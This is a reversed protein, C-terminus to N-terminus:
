FQPSPGADDLRVLESSLRLALRYNLDLMVRLSEAQMDNVEVSSLTDAVAMVYGALVKQNNLEPFIEIVQTTKHEKERTM